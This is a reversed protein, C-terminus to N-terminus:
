GPTTFDPATFPTDSNGTRGSVEDLVTIRAVYSGPPLRAHAQFILDDDLGVTENGPAPAFEIEAGAPTAPATATSDLLRAFVRILPKGGKPTERFTVSTSRIAVNFLTQTERGTTKFFDARARFSPSRLVAPHQGRGSADM